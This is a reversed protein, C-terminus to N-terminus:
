FSKIYDHKQTAGRRELPVHSGFCFQVSEYLALWKRGLKGMGDKKKPVESVFPGLIHKKKM